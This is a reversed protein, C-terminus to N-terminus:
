AEKLSQTVEEYAKSRKPNVEERHSNIDMLDHPYFCGDGRVYHPGFINFQHLAHPM